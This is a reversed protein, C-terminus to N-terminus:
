SSNGISLVGMEKAFQAIPLGGTGTGGGMGAASLLDTGQLINKIEERSEMAAREGISVDGGAGLGKTIEKGIQM